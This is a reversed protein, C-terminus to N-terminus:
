VGKANKEFFNFVEVLTSGVVTVHDDNPTELYTVNLGAKKAAAQMARSGQPPVIGDKAGQVILIPLPKIAQLLKNLAEGDALGGGAVPSIAAFLEPKAAAVMWTGAGGMSHGTLYIKSAEIQYDRKVLGIVKIVDTQAEDNGYGTFRGRGSPAAFIWGRKEAEGKVLAADYLDSFYTKENGLAGHLMVVLPRATRADYSKPIYLRYPVLQGDAARYAREVEGREAALPNEGKGLAALVAEARALEDIPNAPEEGASQNLVSLRQLWFEPTSVFETMAKVKADSSVKIAAAQAQATKVRGTFAGIAYIPITVEGIKKGDAEIIGVVQYGGDPIFLKRSSATLTEAIPLANSINGSKFVSASDTARLEFTVKPINSFAKDTDSPFMRVLAVELETNPEIVLHNIQLTLSALFKQREDWARGELMATGESLMALLDAVNGSRFAQEGRQRLAEIKPFSKGAARKETYLRNFAANRALLENLFPISQAKVTAAKLFLLAFLGALLVRKKM